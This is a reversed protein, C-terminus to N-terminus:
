TRSRSARCAPMFSRRSSDRIGAERGSFPPGFCWSKSATAALFRTLAQREGFRPALSRSQPPAAGMGYHRWATDHGEGSAEGRAIALLDPSAKGAGPMIDELAGQLLTFLHFCNSLNEYRVVVVIRHVGHLVCLEGSRQKLLELVWMAGYSLHQIREFERIINPDRAIERLVAAGRALHAVLAQGLLELGTITEADPAPDEIDDDADGDATAITRSWKLFTELLHRCSLGPDAGAEVSGGLWIALFGAGTPSALKSLMDAVAPIIKLQEEQYLENLAERLAPTWQPGRQSNAASQLAALKSSMNSANM